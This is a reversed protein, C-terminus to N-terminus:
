PIQQSPGEPVPPGEVEHSVQSIEALNPGERLYRDFARKIKPLHTKVLSRARATSGAGYTPRMAAVLHADIEELTAEPNKGVNKWVRSAIGPGSNYGIYMLYINGGYASALNDVYLTGARISKTPNFRADTIECPFESARREVAQPDGSELERQAERSIRCDKTQCGCVYIQGTGFIRRFPKSRATGACFQMLGSCGTHSVAYQRGASEVWMFAKVRAFRVRDGDTERVIYSDWRDMLPQNGTPAPGVIVGAEEEDLQDIVEDVEDAEVGEAVVPDAYFRRYLGVVSDALAASATGDLLNAAREVWSSSSYGYVLTPQIVFPVLLATVILTFVLEATVRIRPWRTTARRFGQVVRDFVREIYPQLAKAPRRLVVFIVGHAPLVAVIRLFVSPVGTKSSLTSWLESVQGFGWAAAVFELGLHIGYAALAFPLIAVLLYTALIDYLGKFISFFVKALKM